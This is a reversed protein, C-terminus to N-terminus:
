GRFLRFDIFLNQFGHHDNRVDDIRGNRNPFIVGLIHLNLTESLRLHRIELNRIMRFDHFLEAAQIEVAGATDGSVTKIVQHPFDRKKM